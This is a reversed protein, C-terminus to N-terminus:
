TKPPNIMGSLDDPIANAASLDRFASVVATLSDSSRRYSQAAQYYLDSREREAELAKSVSDTGQQYDALAGLLTAQTTLLVRNSEEAAEARARLQANEDVLRANEEALNPAAATPTTAFPPQDTYVFWTGSEQQGGDLDGDRVMNRVTRADRRLLHAAKRSSVWPRVGDPKAHINTM